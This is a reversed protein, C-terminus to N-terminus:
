SRKTWWKYFNEAHKEVWEFCARIGIDYGAKESEIWKHKEIEEKQAAMFEQFEKDNM